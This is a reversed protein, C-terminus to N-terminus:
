YSGTEDSLDEWFRSQEVQKDYEEREKPTLSNYWEKAKQRSNRLEEIEEKTFM